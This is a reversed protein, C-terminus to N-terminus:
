RMCEGAEGHQKDKDKDGFGLGEFEKTMKKFFSM